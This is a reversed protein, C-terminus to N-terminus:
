FKITFRSSIVLFRCLQIMFIQLKGIKFEPLSKVYKVLGLALDKELAEPAEKILM